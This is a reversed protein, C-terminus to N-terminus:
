EYFVNAVGDVVGLLAIVVDTVRNLLCELQHLPMPTFVGVDVDLVHHWGIFATEERSPFPLLDTPPFRFFFSLFPFLSVVQSYVNLPGLQRLQINM